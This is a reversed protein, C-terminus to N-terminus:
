DLEGAYAMRGAVHKGRRLGTLKQQALREGDLLERVKRARWSGIREYILLAARLLDSGKAQQVSQAGSLDARGMGEMARAQEPLSSIERAIALADEHLIRADGPPASALFLEGLDNLLEAEGIRFGIGRYLELARGYESAASHDDGVAHRISGLHRIVDAEGRPYGLVQYLVLAERQTV